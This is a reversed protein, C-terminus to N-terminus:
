EKLLKIYQKLYNQIMGKDKITLDDISEAWNTFRTSIFKWPIYPGRRNRPFVISNQTHAMAAFLHRIHYKGNLRLDFIIDKDIDLGRFMDVFAKLDGGTIHADRQLAEYFKIVRKVAYESQISFPNVPYSKIKGPVDRILLNDLMKETLKLFENLQERYIKGSWHKWTNSLIEVSSNPMNKISGVFSEFLSLQEIDQDSSFHIYPNYDFFRKNIIVYLKEILQYKDDVGKIQKIEKLLQGYRKKLAKSLRNRFLPTNHPLLTFIIEDGGVKFYAEIRKNTEIFSVYLVQYKKVAELLQYSKEMNM